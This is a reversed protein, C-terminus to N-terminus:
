PYRHTVFGGSGGGEWTEILLSHEFRRIKHKQFVGIDQTFDFEM